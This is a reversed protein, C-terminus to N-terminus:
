ELRFNAACRPDYYDTVQYRRELASRHVANDCMEEIRVNSTVIIRKPRIKLMGGKTEALFPKHDGWIKLHHLLCKHSEDLDDILVTEEGQYGDWWKNATKLYCGPFRKMVGYTKGCGAPGCIWENELHSISAVDPMYDKAIEKYTRYYRTRMDAPIDDLRGDKAAEFAEKFRKVQAEGGFEAKRKKSMPAVGHEFFRGEKKCYNILADVDRAIEIHCGPLSKIVSNIYRQNHFVVAIQLHPTLTTPAVEEGAIVYRADLKILVDQYDCPYNNWTASFNRSRENQSM